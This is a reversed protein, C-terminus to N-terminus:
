RRHAEAVGRLADTLRNEWGPTALGPRRSAPFVSRWWDAHVIAVELPVSPLGLARAIFFRHTARKTKIVEGSPGIAAWGVEGAIARDFGHRELSDVLPLMYGTLFEEVEADSTRVGGHSAVSGDREIAACLDRYWLSSTPDDRHVRVLDTVWRSITYETLPVVDPFDRARVVFPHRRTLEKFWLGRVHAPLLPALRGNRARKKRPLESWIWGEVRAPDVEIHLRDGLHSRVELARLVAVTARDTM